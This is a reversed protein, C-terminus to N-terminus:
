IMPIVKAHMDMLEHAVHCTGSDYYYHGSPAALGSQPQIWMYMSQGEHPSDRPGSNGLCWVQALLSAGCTGSDIIAM